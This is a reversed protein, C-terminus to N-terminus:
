RVGSSTEHSNSDFESYSHIKGWVSTDVAEYFSGLLVSGAKHESQEYSVSAPKKYSGKDITLDTDTYTKDAFSGYVENRDSWTNSDIELNTKTFGWSDISENRVYTEGAFAPAAVISAAIALGLVKINKM